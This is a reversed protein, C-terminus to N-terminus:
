AIVTFVGTALLYNKLMTDLELKTHTHTEYTHTHSLGMNKIM